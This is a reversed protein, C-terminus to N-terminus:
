DGFRYEASVFYSREPVPYANYVGPSFVSRVGYTFYKENTANLVSAALRLRGIERALRLDTVTYAPIMQGFSNTEDNDFFQRGVYRTEVTFRTDGSFRYAASVATRHRPVLPVTRGEVSNGALAGETFKAVAWTYSGALELATWPSWAAELELGYRRTPPLNENAFTFPNLRIENRLDMHYASVRLRSGSGNREVGVERDHSTQPELFAVLPDFLPGGFQSYIEDVAAIRFSRGVKGYVHWADAFPQRVALEHARVTRSQAGSAYATASDADRADYEAAQVRGGITVRTATPLDTSHQAYLARNRQQALVTAPGTRISVYDWHEVDVGAVLQHAWGFSEHQLKMRPTFAWVEVDADVRTFGFFLSESRKKRYALDAALELRDLEISAFGRVFASERDAYDDPTTAGRRDTALQTNNRAGPLQLDQKEAGVTLRLQSGPALSGVSVEANRQRLANHDRYNDSELYEANATLGISEGAVRGSARTGFTNYSGGATQVRLERAGAAPKRTVINIVGGTAGGGYLVAGSGRLIEVREVASLPITSWRVATIENDNLKLGDVLVLTNQDGTVGFGRLDVQQDPSGTSDRFMLGPERALLEPLTRANSQEIRERSVISVGIPADAALQEFRTATVAVEPAILDSQAQLHFPLLPLLLAAGAALAPFLRKM